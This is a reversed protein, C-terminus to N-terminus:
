RFDLLGGAMGTSEIAEELHLLAVCACREAQRAGDLPESCSDCSEFGPQGAARVFGRRSKGVFFNVV